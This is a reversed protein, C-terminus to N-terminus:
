HYSLYYWITKQGISSKPVTSQKSLTSKYAIAVKDLSVLQSYEAIKYSPANDNNNTHKHQNHNSKPGIDIDKNENNAPQSKKLQKMYYLKEFEDSGFINYIYVCHFM